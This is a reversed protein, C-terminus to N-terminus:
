HKVEDNTECCHMILVRSVGVQLVLIGAKWQSLLM